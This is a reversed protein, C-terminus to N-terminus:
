KRPVVANRFATAVFEMFTQISKADCIGNVLTKLLFAIIDAAANRLAGSPLAKHLEVIHQLGENRFVTCMAEINGSSQYTELNKLDNQLCHVAERAPGSVSEEIIQLLKAM